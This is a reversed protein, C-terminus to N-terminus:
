CYPFLRGADAFWPALYPERLEMQPPLIQCVRKAQYTKLIAKPTEVSIPDYSGGDFEAVCLWCNTSSRRKMALMGCFYQLLKADSSRLLFVQLFFTYYLDLTWPCRPWTVLGMFRDNRGSRLELVLDNWKTLASNGRMTQDRM